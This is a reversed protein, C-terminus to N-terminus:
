RGAEIPAFLPLWVDERHEFRVQVRMGITVVDPDVDVLRTTLRLDAQEDLSVIAIAYPPAPDTFWPQHNVTYTHVTGTGAVAEPSIRRGLCRPCRPLPPHIWLACDACQLFRLRDDQGSEWFFRNADDIRPLPSVRAATAAAAGPV